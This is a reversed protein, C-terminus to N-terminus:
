KNKETVKVTNNGIDIEPYFNKIIKLVSHLDITIIQQLQNSTITYWDSTEKINFKKELYSIFEKQLSPDKLLQSAYGKRVKLFQYM